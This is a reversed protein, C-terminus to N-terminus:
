MGLLPLKVRLLEDGNVSATMAAGVVVVSSAEVPEVDTLWGTVNVATTLAAGLTAVGVPVTMKLTLPAGTAPTGTLPPRALKVVENWCVPVLEIVAVKTLESGA